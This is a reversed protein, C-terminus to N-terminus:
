GVNAEQGDSLTSCGSEKVIYGEADLKWVVNPDCEINGTVIIGVDKDGLDSMSDVQLTPPADMGHVLAGGSIKLDEDKKGFIADFNDYYNKWGTGRPRDGKGCDHYFTKTNNDSM